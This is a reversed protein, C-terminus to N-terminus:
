EGITFELTANRSNADHGIVECSGQGHVPPAGRLVVRDNTQVGAVSYAAPPCGQRFIYATGRLAGRRDTTGHFLVGCRCDPGRARM